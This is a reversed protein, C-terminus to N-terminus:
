YDLRPLPTDVKAGLPLPTDVKAGLKNTRLNGSGRRNQMPIPPGQIKKLYIYGRAGLTSSSSCGVTEDEIV